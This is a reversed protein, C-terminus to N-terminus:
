NEAKKLRARFETFLRSPKQKLLKEEYGVQKVGAFPAIKCKHLLQQVIADHGIGEPVLNSIKSQAM